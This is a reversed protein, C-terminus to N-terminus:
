HALSFNGEGFSLLTACTRAVTRARTPCSSARRCSSGSSSLVSASGSVSVEATKAPSTLAEGSPSKARVGPGAGADAAEAVPRVEQMEGRSAVRV